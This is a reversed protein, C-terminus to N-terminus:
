RTSAFSPKRARGIAVAPGAPRLPVVRALERLRGEDLPSGGPLGRAAPAKAHDSLLGFQFPNNPKIKVAGKVRVRAPWYKGDSNYRGREVQSLYTPGITPPTPPSKKVAAVVQQDSPGPQLLRCGTACTLALAGVVGIMRARAM